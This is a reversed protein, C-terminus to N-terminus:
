GDILDTRHRCLLFAGCALAGAILIFAAAAAFKGGILDFVGSYLLVLGGGAALSILSMTCLRLARSLFPDTM